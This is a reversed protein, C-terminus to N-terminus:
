EEEFDTWASKNKEFKTCFVDIQKLLKDMDFEVHETGGWRTGADSRYGTTEWDETFEHKNEVLWTKLADQIKM